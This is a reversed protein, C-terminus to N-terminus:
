DRIVLRPDLGQWEPAPEQAHLVGPSLLATLALVYRKM